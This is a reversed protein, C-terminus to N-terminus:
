KKELFKKDNVVIKTAKPQATSNLVTRKIVGKAEFTLKISKLLVWSKWLYFFCYIKNIGLLGCDELDRDSENGRIGVFIQARLTKKKIEIFIPVDLLYPTPTTGHQLVDHNRTIVLSKMRLTSCCSCFM